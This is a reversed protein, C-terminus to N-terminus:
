SASADTTIVADGISRLTGGTAGAGRGPHCPRRQESVDSAVTAFLRAPRSWRSASTAALPAFFTQFRTAEGSQAVRAYVDLYPAVGDFVESALRGLCGERSAGHRPHLRPQLDLFRYDVARGDEGLVVEHLAVLELMAEFALPM